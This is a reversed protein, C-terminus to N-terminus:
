KGFRRSLCQQYATRISNCDHAREDECQQLLRAEDHCNNTTNNHPSQQSIDYQNNTNNYQQTYSQNNMYQPQSQGPYKDIVHVSRNGFLADVASFAITIGVGVILVM